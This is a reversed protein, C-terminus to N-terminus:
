HCTVLLRDRVQRPSAILRQTIETAHERILAEFTDSYYFRPPPLFGREGRDLAAQLSYHGTM